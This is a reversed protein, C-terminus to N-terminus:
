FSKSEQEELGAMSHQHLNMIRDGEHDREPKKYNKGVAGFVTKFEGIWGGSCPCSEM